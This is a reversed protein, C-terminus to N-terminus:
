SWYISLISFSWHHICQSFTSESVSCFFLNLSDVNRSLFPFRIEKLFQRWFSLLVQERYFSKKKWRLPSRNALYNIEYDKEIIWWKEERKRDREVCKKQQPRVSDRSWIPIRYSLYVSDVFELIKNWKSSRTWNQLRYLYWLMLVVQSIRNGSMKRFRIKWICNKRIEYKRIGKEKIGKKQIVFNRIQCVTNRMTLETLFAYPSNIEINLLTQWHCPMPELFNQKESEHFFDQFTLRM